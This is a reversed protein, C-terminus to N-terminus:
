TVWEFAESPGSQRREVSERFVANSDRGDLEITWYAPFADCAIFAVTLPVVVLSLYTATFARAEIRTL